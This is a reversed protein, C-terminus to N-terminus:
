KNDLSDQFSQYSVILEKKQAKVEVFLPPIRIGDLAEICKQCHEALLKPNTGKKEDDKLKQLMVTSDHIAKKENDASLATGMVMIKSDTILNYRSLLMDGAMAKGKFVLKQGTVPIAFENWVLDMLTAVPSTTEIEVEKKKKGYQILVTLKM